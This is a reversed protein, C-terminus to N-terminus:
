LVFSLVLHNLYNVIKTKEIKYETAAFAQMSSCALSFAAILIAIAPHITRESTKEIENKVYNNNEKKNCM